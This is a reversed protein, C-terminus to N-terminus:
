SPGAGACQDDHRRDIDRASGIIVNSHLHGSGCRGKRRILIPAM